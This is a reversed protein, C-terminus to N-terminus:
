TKRDIRQAVRDVARGAARQAKPGLRKIPDDFWDEAGSLQVIWTKGFVQRRWQADNTRKAANVFKRPMGAKRVRIRAGAGRGGFRVDVTVRDSIANRLPIGAHPLGASAMSMLGSRQEAVVTELLGEFTEALDSRLEDGDAEDNLALAVRRFVKADPEVKYELM